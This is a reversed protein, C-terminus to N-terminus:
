EGAKQQEIDDALVTADAKKKLATRENYWMGILLVAVGVTISADAINFVAFTGVSIFDTVEGITLRDILNGVAGGLQMGMAVRLPWEEKPVRPFYYVMFCAVVLSLVTFVMGFGQFMGFAAGTNTWHVIRAFPTLWEWPSWSGGFPINARVLSKTWQDLIIILSAIGILMVYKKIYSFM